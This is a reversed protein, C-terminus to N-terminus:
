RSVLDAAALRRHMRRLMRKRRCVSWAYVDPKSATLQMARNSANPLECHVRRYISVADDDLSHSVRLENPQIDIIRLIILRPPDSTESRHFRIYIFRGGAHWTGIPNPERPAVGVGMTFRHDPDFRYYVPDVSVHYDPVEWTGYLVEAGPPRYHTEYVYILAAILLLAVCVSAVILWRQSRTWPHSPPLLM